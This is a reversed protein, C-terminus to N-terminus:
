IGASGDTAAQELASRAAVLAAQRAAPTVELIDFALHELLATFGPEDGLSALLDLQHALQALAAEQRHSHDAGLDHHRGAVSAVAAPLKWARAMAAGAKEHLTHFVQGVLATTLDSGQKGEERLLALLAVKGLDHLLGLVYAQEPDRGLPRAIARAVRAVSLAQRWVEEAYERLVRDGLLAGRLSASFILGRLARLGVRMVAQHLSEVPTSASYLASNALRLLESSLLPDASILEVLAAVEASPRGALELASLTTAPLQPLDYEGTDVRQSLRWLLKEQPGELIVTVAQPRDLNGVGRAAEVPAAPGSSRAGPSRQPLAPPPGSCPGMGIRTPARRIPVPQESLGLLGRMWALMGM